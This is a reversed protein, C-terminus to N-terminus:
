KAIKILRGGPLAAYVFSADVAVYYAPEISFTTTGAPM